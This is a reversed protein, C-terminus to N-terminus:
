CPHQASGTGFINLALVLLLQIDDGVIQDVAAVNQDPYIALWKWDLGVLDIRLPEGPLPDYPALQRTAHCLWFALM